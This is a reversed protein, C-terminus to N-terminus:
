GLLRLGTLISKAHSISTPQWSYRRAMRVVIGESSTDTAIYVFCDESRARTIITISVSDPNLCMLLDKAFQAVVWNDGFFIM